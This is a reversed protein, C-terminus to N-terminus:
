NNYKKKATCCCLPEDYIESRVLLNEPPEAKPTLLKSLPM